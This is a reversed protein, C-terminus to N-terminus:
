PDELEIVDMEPWSKGTVYFRKSAPDWAIGNLVSEKGCAQASDVLPQLDLVGTVTGSADLRVIFPTQWVNAYVTGDVCELENLQRLPAGALTVPVEHPHAFDGAPHVWLRATGDSRIFSTGDFCLGWGENEYSATRAIKMTRLDWVLAVQAKWSLQVLEDGNVAIGEAYLRDAAGPVQDPVPYSALARGTTPDLELLASKGYLGVSEFLRGNAFTLGETYADTAHPLKAVQRWRIPLPPRRMVEWQPSPVYTPGCGVTAALMLVAAGAFSAPATRHLHTRM